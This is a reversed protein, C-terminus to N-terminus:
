FQCMGRNRWRFMKWRHKRNSISQNWIHAHIIHNVPENIHKQTEFINNAKSCYIKSKIIFAPLCLRRSQCRREREKGKSATVTHMQLHFLSARCTSEFQPGSSQHSLSSDTHLTLTIGHCLWIATSAITYPAGPLCALQFIVSSINM